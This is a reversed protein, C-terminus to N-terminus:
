EGLTDELGPISRMDESDGANCASEKSVLGNSFGGQQKPLLGLISPYIGTESTELKRWHQCGFHM